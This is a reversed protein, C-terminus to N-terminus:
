LLDQLLGEVPAVELPQDEAVSDQCHHLAAVVVHSQRIQAAVGRHVLHLKVAVPVRYAM